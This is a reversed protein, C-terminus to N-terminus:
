TGQVPALRLTDSPGAPGLVLFPAQGAGFLMPLQRARAAEPSMTLSLVLALVASLAAGRPGRGPVALGARPRPHDRRGGGARSPVHGPGGGGAGGRGAGGGGGGGE